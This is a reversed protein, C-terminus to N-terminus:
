GTFSSFAVVACHGPEHVVFNGYFSLSVQVAPGEASTSNPATNIYDDIMLRFSTDPESQSEVSEHGPENNPVGDNIAEVNNLAVFEIAESDLIYCLGKPCYPDEYLIDVFSKSFSARFASIGRTVENTGAKEPSSNTMQFYTMNQQLEYMVTAFDEDNIVIMDPVGGGRRAMKLGQVIADSLLDGPQQKYFWGMLQGTAASRTVGYFATTAYATWNAGTRNLLAPLWQGFGTPMNPNGAGLVNDQGGSVVIWSGVTAGGACATAAFHVNQGDISTITVFTSGVFACAPTATASTYNTFNIQMGVDLKVVTDWNVTIVTAASAMATTVQGVDGYGWGFLNAALLKRAGETAAFMRNILAKVYAGQKSQSALVEKQTVTFVSFVNGPTVVFEINKSMSSALAVAVTYDGSTAGGRGYLAAFRYEKGQFRNKAIKKLTPSNRFLLNPFRKETYWTKYITLLAADATTQQAM